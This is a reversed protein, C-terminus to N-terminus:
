SLKSFSGSAMRAPALSTDTPAQALALAVSLVVLALVAPIKYKLIEEGESDFTLQSFGIRRMHQRTILKMFRRRKYVTLVQAFM